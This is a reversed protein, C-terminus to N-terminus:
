RLCRRGCNPCVRAPANEFIHWTGKRSMTLTVLKREQPM